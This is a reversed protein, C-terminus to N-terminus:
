KIFYPPYKWILEMDLWISSKNLYLMNKKNKKNKKKYHINQYDNWIWDFALSIWIICTQHHCSFNQQWFKPVYITDQCYVRRKDNTKLRTKICSMNLPLTEIYSVWVCIMDEHLVSWNRLIHRNDSTPLCSKSFSM